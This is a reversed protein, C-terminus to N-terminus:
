LAHTHAHAHTYTLRREGAPLLCLGQLAAEKSWPLLLYATGVHVHAHLAQLTVMWCLVHLTQVHVHVYQYGQTRCTETPKLGRQTHDGTCWHTTVWCCHKSATKIWRAGEEALAATQGRLHPGLSHPSQPLAVSVFSPPWEWKIHETTM